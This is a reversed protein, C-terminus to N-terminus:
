GTKESFHGQIATQATFRVQSFHHRFSVKKSSQLHRTTKIKSKKHCLPEIHSM